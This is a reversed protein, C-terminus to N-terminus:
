NQKKLNYYLKMIEGKGKRGGLVGIYEQKNEKLHMAKKENIEPLCM